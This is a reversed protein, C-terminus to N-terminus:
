GARVRFPGRQAETQGAGDGRQVPSSVMIIRPDLELADAVEEHDQASVILLSKAFGDLQPDEAM